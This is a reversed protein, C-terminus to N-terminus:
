EETYENSYCLSILSEIPLTGAREISFPGDGHLGNNVDIVRGRKHAGITIGIGLHCVILNVQDYQRNLEQSALRAVAKQNLAHFISKRKITPVGTFTAEDQFEDVVPPDVIFAAVNLQTAIQHAIIAGLNSIHKGNYHHKLHKIMEDTVYYTGGKVPKIIGGNAVIANIKSVNIGADLLHEMIEDTRSSCEELLDATYDFLSHRHYISQKYICTKNLFVAIETKNIKP